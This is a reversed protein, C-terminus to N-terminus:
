SPVRVDDPFLVPLNKAGLRGLLNSYNEGLFRFNELQKVQDVVGIHERSLHCVLWTEHFDFTRVKTVDLGDEGYLFQVVSGDADRVTM